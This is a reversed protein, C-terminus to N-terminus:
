LISRVYERTDRTKSIKTENDLLKKMTRININIPLCKLTYKFTCIYTNIM